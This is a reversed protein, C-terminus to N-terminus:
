IQNPGNREESSGLKYSVRHFLYIQEMVTVSTGYGNNTGSGNSKQEKVMRSLGNHKTGSPGNQLPLSVPSPGIRNLEIRDTGQLTGSSEGM